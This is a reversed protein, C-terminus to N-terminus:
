TNTSQEARYKAIKEAIEAPIVKNIFEAAADSNFALEMFIKSYAKTAKFKAFVQENQVFYKGDDSKEGYTLELFDRFLKIMEQQDKEQIIRQIFEEIGGDKSFSLEIIRDESLDFYFDETREKGNYDTYTVTKKIM